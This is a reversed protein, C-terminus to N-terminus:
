INNLFDCYRDVYVKDTFNKLYMERNLNGLKEREEASMNKINNLHEVAEDVTDYLFVGNPQLKEFFKNGGTRSAVVIKGLALVELMVIDFYTELNPLVFVDAAGIYSHADNTWGIEIWRKHEYRKLPEEKGAVVMWTHEDELMKKGIKRLSDYGKVYNHRGVYSIYFDDDAINLEDRVENRPRKAKCDPIGTPIYAYHERRQERLISYDDWNNIYPDEAEECPFLIIDARNFAYEDMEILRSYLKKFFKKEFPTVQEDYIEKSLPVPSHSTLIVTGKYDKLSNRIEYMARTHHFHVVEYKNIDVASFGGKNIAKSYRRYRKAIHVAKKIFPFKNALGSKTKYVSSSGKEDDIFDINKENREDLQKKVYYGVAYPGGKPELKTKELYVLTKKM